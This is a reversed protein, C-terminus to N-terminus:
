LNFRLSPMLQHMNVCVTSVKCGRLLCSTLCALKGVHSNTMGGRGFLVDYAGPERVPIKSMGESSQSTHDEPLMSHLYELDKELHIEFVFAVAWEVTDEESVMSMVAAAEGGAAPHSSRLLFRPHSTTPKPSIDEATPPGVFQAEDLGNLVALAAKVQTEASITYMTVIQAALNFALQQPGMNYVGKPEGNQQLDTEGDQCSVLIVDNTEVQLPSSSDANSQAKRELRKKFEKYPSEHLVGALSNKTVKEVLMKRITSAANADTVVQIAGNGDRELIRGPAKLCPRPVDRLGVLEYKKGMKLLQVIHDATQDFDAETPAKGQLGWLVFHLQVLDELFMYMKHNDERNNLVVDREGVDSNRRAGGGAAGGVSSPDVEITPKVAEDDDEEDEATPAGDVLLGQQLQQNGDAAPSALLSAAEAVAADAADAGSM